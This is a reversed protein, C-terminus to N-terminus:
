LHQGGGVGDRLSGSNRSQLLFPNVQIEDLVEAQWAKEKQELHRVTSNAPEESSDKKINERRCGGSGVM